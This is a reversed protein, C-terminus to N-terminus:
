LDNGRLAAIVRIVLHAALLGVAVSVALYSAALWYDGRLLMQLLEVQVTSFTTLGGCLGTGLLLRRYPRREHVLRLVAALVAAGLVNVAVTAWPWSGAASPLAAALGARLGTGAAGGLFVAGLARPDRAVAARPPASM